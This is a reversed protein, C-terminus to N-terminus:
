AAPGNARRAIACGSRRAATRRSACLWVGSATAGAAARPACSATSAPTYSQLVIAKEMLVDRLAVPSRDPRRRAAPAAGVDAAVDAAPPSEAPSLRPARAPAPAQRPPPPAQRPPPPPKPAYLGGGPRAAPAASGGGAPAGPRGAAAARYEPAPPARRGTEARGISQHTRGPDGRTNRPAGRAGAGAAGGAAAVPADSEDGGFFEVQPDRRVHDDGNAGSFRAAAVVVGRGTLRSSLGSVRRSAARVFMESVAAATTAGGAGIAVRGSARDPLRAFRRNGRLSSSARSSSRSTSTVM